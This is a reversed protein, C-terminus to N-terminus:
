RVHTSPSAVVPHKRMAGHDDAILKWRFDDLTPVGFGTDQKMSSTAMSRSKYSKAPALGALPTRTLRMQLSPTSHSNDEHDEYVQSEKPKVVSHEPPEDEDDFDFSVYNSASTKRENEGKGDIEENSTRQLPFLSPVERSPKRLNEGKQHNVQNDDSFLSSRSITKPSVQKVDNGSDTDVNKRKQVIKKRGRKSTAAKNQNHNKANKTEKKKKKAMPATETSIQEKLEDSVDKTTAKRRERMEYKRPTPARTEPPTASRSLALVPQPRVTAVPSPNSMSKCFLSRSTAGDCRSILGVPLPSIFVERGGFGSTKFRNETSGQGNVLSGRGSVRISSRSFDDLVRSTSFSRALSSQCIDDRFELSRQCIKDSANIADVYAVRKLSNSGVAVGSSAKDNTFRGDYLPLEVLPPLRRRVTLHSPPLRGSDGDEEIAEDGNIKKATGSLTEARTMALLDRVEQAHKERLEKLDAEYSHYRPFAHCSFM